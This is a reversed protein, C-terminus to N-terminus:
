SKKNWKDRRGKKNVWQGGGPTQTQMRGRRESLMQNEYIVGSSVSCDQGTVGSVIYNMM